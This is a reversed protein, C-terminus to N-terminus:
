DADEAGESENSKNAEAAAKAAAVTNTALNAALIYEGRIAFQQGMGDPVPPMGFKARFEDANMAGRDTMSQCLTAKTQNSMYDIASSMFSIANGQARERDSYTMNTLVLSLQQQFPEVKSEYFANWVDENFKNQLIEENVGFYNFVNNEILKMQEADVTYQKRDIPTVNEWTNDYAMVGTTNSKSLNGAAFEDRKAAIDEPRSQGAVKVLWDISASNEIASNIAQNQADILQMTPEIARNGDGFLENELQVKTLVGVNTAPELVSQGNPFRIEYWLEGQVSYAAATSPLAPYFGNIRGYADRMPFVFCTTKAELIACTRYLFKTKDMYPNPKQRLASEIQRNAAGTVFPELKSCQTAIANVAARTLAMEFVGGDYTTFVPAYSSLTSFYGSAKPPAEDAKKGFIKELLGM